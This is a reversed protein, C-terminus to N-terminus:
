QSYMASTVYFLYFSGTYVHLLGCLWLKVM